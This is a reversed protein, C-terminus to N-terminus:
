AMAQDRINIVIEQLHIEGNGRGKPAPAGGEVSVYLYGDKAM